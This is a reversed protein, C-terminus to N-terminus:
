GALSFRRMDVINNTLANRVETDHFIGIACTGRAIAEKILSIVAGRNPRDLSATPEDLLLIPLEAVLGRAINVRQQEGGSFTMPPLEWLASPVNLRELMAASRRHAQQRTQGLSVLPESVVDLTSLRPLARLFQSVYGITTRRMDIIVEPEAATVDVHQATGRVLIRGHTILYNGYIARLLSSKGIGSPGDLAICEGRSASFSVNSFVRRTQNRSHITFDKGVGTLKVMQPDNM